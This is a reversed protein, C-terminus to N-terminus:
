RIVPFEAQWLKKDEGSIYQGTRIRAIEYGPLPVAALCKGGRRAGHESFDFGVNGFGYERRDAPLDDAAIPFLHLFFRAQTDAAACADKYYVMRNGDFYLDFTRSEVLQSSELGAEIEHFRAFIGPNVENEWIMEGKYVFQGTRIRAIEYGPLPVKILCMGGVRVGHKTFHFDLNNFGQQRSDALLDAADAPTIHLMFPDITDM